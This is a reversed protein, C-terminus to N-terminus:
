LELERSEAGRQRAAIREKQEQELQARNREQYEKWTEGSRKAQTRNDNVPERAAAREPGGTQNNDNAKRTELNQQALEDRNMHRARQRQPERLPENKKVQRLAARLEEVTPLGELEALKERVEKARIGRVCRSISHPEQAGDMVVVGRRGTALQYGAAEIRAKFDHGDKSQHWAAEMGANLRLRPQASRADQYGQLERVHQKLRHVGRARPPIQQLGLEIEIERAAGCLKRHSFSLEACKRTEVNVRSWVVHLHEKGQFTHSVVARPQGELGLAKEAKAVSYTWDAPTMRDRDSPNIALHFLSSQARTMKALQDMERLSQRLGNASRDDAITGYIDLVEVKENKTSLLYTALQAGGSRPRGKLIM